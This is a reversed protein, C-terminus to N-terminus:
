VPGQYVDVVYDDPFYSRLWYVRGNVEDRTGGRCLQYQSVGVNNDTPLPTPSPNGLYGRQEVESEDTHFAEFWTPVVDEPDRTGAVVESLQGFDFVFCYEVRQRGRIASRDYFQHDSGLTTPMLLGQRESTWIPVVTQGLQDGATFYAFEATPQGIGGHGYGYFRVRDGASPVTDFAPSVTYTTGSDLTLSREDQGAGAGDTVRMFPIAAGQGNNAPPASDLTVTTSTASVVERHWIDYEDGATPATAFVTDLFATGMVNGSSYLVTGSEGVAAGSTMELQMDNFVNDYVANSMWLRVASGLVGTTAATGGDITQDDAAGGGSELPTLALSGLTGGPLFFMVRGFIAFREATLASLNPYTGSDIANFANVFQVIAGSDTNLESTTLAYDWTEGGLTVRILDGVEWTGAVNYLRAYEHGQCGLGSDSGAFRQHYNRDQLPSDDPLPRRQAGTGIADYEVLVTAPTYPVASEGTDVGASYAAEPLAATPAYVCLGSGGGQGEVLSHYGGGYFALTPTGGADLHDDAWEQPLLFAGMDRRKYSITTDDSERKLRFPGDRTFTGHEGGSLRLRLFSPGQAQVQYDGGYSVWLTTNDEWFLGRPVNDGGWDATVVLNGGNTQLAGEKAVQDDWTYVHTGTPLTGFDKGLTEPPLFESVYGSDDAGANDDEGTFCSLRFEGGVRRSALGGYGWSFHNQTFRKYTKYSEGALQPVTGPAFSFTKDPGGLYLGDYRFMTWTSGANPGTLVEFVVGSSGTPIGPEDGPLVVQEGSLTGVVTLGTSVDSQGLPVLFSGLYTLDAKAVLEQAGGATTTASVADTPNGDGGATTNPVARFYYTTSNSLGSPTHAEVGAAKTAVLTYDGPFTPTPDSSQYIKTVAGATPSATWTLPITTSTPSGAALDTIDEPPDTPPVVVTPRGWNLRRTGARFNRGLRPV